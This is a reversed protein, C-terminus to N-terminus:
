APGYRLLFVPGGLKVRILVSVVIFVPMLVVLGVLALVMDFVRKLAGNRMVLNVFSM